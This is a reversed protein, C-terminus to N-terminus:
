STGEGKFEDIITLAPSWAGGLLSLIFPTRYDAIMPDLRLVHDFFPNPTWPQGLRLGATQTNYFLLCHATKVYELM